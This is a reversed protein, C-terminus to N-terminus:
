EEGMMRIAASVSAGATVRFGLRGAGKIILEDAWRGQWLFGQQPHVYEAIPVGGSDTPEVTATDKATTQLTEVLDDDWPRLTTVNTLTGASTQRVVECLIPTATNSTGNFSISIEKVRVKVNTAALLQLLTKLATGTTIGSVEASFNNCAM